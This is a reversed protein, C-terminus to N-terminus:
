DACERTGIHYIGKKKVKTIRDLVGLVVDAAAGKAHQELYTRTDSVNKPLKPLRLNLEHMDVGDFGLTTTDGTVLEVVDEVLMGLSAGLHARYSGGRKAIGYKLYEDWFRESTVLRNPLMVSAKSDGYAIAYSGDYGNESDIFKLAANGTSWRIAADNQGLKSRYKMAWWTPLFSLLSSQNNVGEYEYTVSLSEEDLVIGANHLETRLKHVHWYDGGVASVGVKTDSVMFVRNDLVAARHPRDAHSLVEWLQSAFDTIKQKVIVGGSIGDIEQVQIRDFVEMGSILSNQEGPMAIGSVTDVKQKTGTVMVLIPRSDSPIEGHEKYQFGIKSLEAVLLFAGKRHKTEM